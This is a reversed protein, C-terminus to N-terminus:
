RCRAKWLPMTTAGCLPWLQPALARVQVQMARVNDQTANFTHISRAETSRVRRVGRVEYTDNPHAFGYRTLLTRMRASTALSVIHAFRPSGGRRRQLLDGIGFLMLLQGVNAEPAGVVLELEAKRDAAGTRPVDLEFIGHVDERKPNFTGYAVIGVLDLRKAAARQGSRPVDKLKFALYVNCQKSWLQNSLSDEVYTRLTEHGSYDKLLQKISHDNEFDTFFDVVEAHRDRPPLPAPDDEDTVQAHKALLTVPIKKLIVGSARVLTTIDRWLDKRAEM